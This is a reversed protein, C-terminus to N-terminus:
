LQAGTPPADLHPLPWLSLFRILEACNNHSASIVAGMAASSAEDFKLSATLKSNITTPGHLDNLEVATFEIYSVRNLRMVDMNTLVPFNKAELIINKGALLWLSSYRRIPNPQEYGDAVFVATIPPPIFEKFTGCVAEARNILPQPMEIRQFYEMFQELM